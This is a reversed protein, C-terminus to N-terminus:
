NVSTTCYNRERYRVISYSLFGAILILLFYFWTTRWFPPKVVFHVRTELAHSFDNSDSVKLKFTYDGPPLKSYTASNDHTTIWEPDYNELQYTFGLAGPNKYWFGLFDIKINNQDYRLENIKEWDVHQDDAELNDIFPRPSDQIKSLSENYVIIGHDTGVYLGGRNDKAVANLNAIKNRIGTEEDFYQFKNKVPNFVDIGLDHATLLQGEFGSSLINFNLNHLRNQNEYAPKLAL